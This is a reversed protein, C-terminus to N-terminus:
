ICWFKILLFLKYGYPHSRIPRNEHSGQIANKKIVREVIHLIGEDKLPEFRHICSWMCNICMMWIHVRLCCTWFDAWEQINEHINQNIQEIVLLLGFLMLKASTSLYQLCNYCGHLLFCWFRHTRKEYNPRITVNQNIVISTTSHILCPKSSQWICPVQSKSRKCHCGM